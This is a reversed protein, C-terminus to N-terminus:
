GRQIIVRQLNFTKNLIIDVNGDINLFIMLLDNRNRGNVVINILFLTIVFPIQLYLASSAVTITLM